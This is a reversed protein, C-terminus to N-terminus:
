GIAPRTVAPRTVAPRTVAPRTVAPRTVAAARVVARAVPLVPAGVEVARGRVLGAGRTLAVRRGRGGPVGLPVAPVGLGAGGLAPAVAVRRGFM